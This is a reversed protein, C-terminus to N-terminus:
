KLVNLSLSTLCKQTYLKALDGNTGEVPLVVYPHLPTSLLSDQWTRIGTRMRAYVIKGEVCQRSIKNRANSRLCVVAFPLTAQKDKMEVIKM